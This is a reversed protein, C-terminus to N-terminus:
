DELPNRQRPHLVDRLEIADVSIRYVLRYRYQRSVQIRLATGPVRRGIKPFARLLQLTRDIDKALSDAASPNLLRLYSDQTTLSQLARRSIRLDRV